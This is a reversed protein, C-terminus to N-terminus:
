SHLRAGCKKCFNADADDTAACGACTVPGSKGLGQVVSPGSQPAGLAPVATQQTQENTLESSVTNGGTLKAVARM